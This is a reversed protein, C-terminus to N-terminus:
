SGEGVSTTEVRSNQQLKSHIIKREYAQMPELKIPKKTRIVTKAVKQALDELTKERKAKYGEIDLIVRVKQEIGKGAIATMISQLAYLTEGRYGILYGLNDNTLSVKLGSEETSIEYKTDEPLNKIFDKLFKEINEKAKEQEQETLKIERKEQSKAGKVDEKLTLEVKVVRPALISFFSRKDENELVKVEVKDKSVKLQKLGNEIAENTTKGEAIITKEM